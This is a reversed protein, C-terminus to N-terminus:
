CRQVRLGSMEALNRYLEENSGLVSLDLTQCANESEMFVKCHGNQVGLGIEAKKDNKNHCRTPSNDGDSSSEPPDFSSTESTQHETFILQGFLMIHPSRGPASKKEISEEFCNARTAM